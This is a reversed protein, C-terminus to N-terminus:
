KNFVTYTVTYTVFLCKNFYLISPFIKTKELLLFTNFVSRSLTCGTNKIYVAANNSWKSVNLCFNFIFNCIQAAISASFDVYFM